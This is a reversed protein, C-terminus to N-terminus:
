GLCNLRLCEMQKSQWTQWCLVPFLYFVVSKAETQARPRLDPSVLGESFPQREWKNRGGQLATGSYPLQQHVHTVWRLSWPPPKPTAVQLTAPKQTPQLLFTDPFFFLLCKCRKSLNWRGPSPALSKLKFWSLRGWVLLFQTAMLSGLFLFFLLLFNIM